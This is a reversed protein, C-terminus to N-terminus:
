SRQIVDPIRVLVSSANIKSHVRRQAIEEVPPIFIEKNLLDKNYDDTSSLSVPGIIEHPSKAQLESFEADFHVDDANTVEIVSVKTWDSVLVSVHISHARVSAQNSSGTLYCLGDVIFHSNCAIFISIHEGPEVTTTIVAEVSTLFVPFLDRIGISFWGILCFRFIFSSEVLGM